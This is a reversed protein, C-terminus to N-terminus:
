ATVPQPCADSRFRVRSAPKLAWRTLGTEIEVIWSSIARPSCQDVPRRRTPSARRMRRRCASPLAAPYPVSAMSVRKICSSVWSEEDKKYCWALRPSHRERLARLAGAAVRSADNARSLARCSRPGDSWTDCGSGLADERPREIPSENEDASRRVREESSFSASWVCKNLVAFYKPLDVTPSM